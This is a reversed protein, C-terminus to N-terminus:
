TNRQSSSKKGRGYERRRSRLLQRRKRAWSHWRSRRSSKCKKESNTSRLRSRRPEGRM